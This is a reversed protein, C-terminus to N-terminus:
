DYNVRGTYMCGRIIIIDLGDEIIIIITFAPLLPPLIITMAVFGSCIWLVTNGDYDIAHILVLGIKRAKCFDWLRDLSQKRESRM